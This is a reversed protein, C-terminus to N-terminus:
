YLILTGYDEIQMHTQLQHEELRFVKGEYTDIIEPNHLMQLLFDDNLLANMDAVKYPELFELCASLQSLTYGTCELLIKESAEMTASLPYVKWFVAAALVSASFEMSAGDMVADDLVSCAKAFLM